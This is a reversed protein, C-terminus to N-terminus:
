RRIGLKKVFRGWAIDDETKKKEQKLGKIYIELNTYVVTVVIAIALYNLSNKWNINIPRPKM